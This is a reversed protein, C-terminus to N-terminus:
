AVLSLTAQEIAQALRCAVLSLRDRVPGQVRRVARGHVAEDLQRTRAAHHPVAVRARQEVAGVEDALPTGGDARHQQGTPVRLARKGPRGNSAADRTAGDLLPRDDFSAADPLDLLGHALDLQAQPAMHITTPDDTSIDVFGRRDGHSPHDDGGDRVPVVAVGRRCRDPEVVLLQLDPDGAM